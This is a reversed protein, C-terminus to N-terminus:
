ATPKQESQRRRRRAVVAASLGSGLLILSAPEPITGGPPTGGVRTQWEQFGDNDAAIGALAPDTCQYPPQISPATACGWGDLLAIYPGAFGTQEIFVDIDGSGSGNHNRYDFNVFDSLAGFLDLFPTGGNCQSLSTYDTTSCNFLMLQNLSLLSGSGSSVQNIDVTFLAYNSTEGSVPPTNNFSIDGLPLSSSWSADFDNFANVGLQHTSDTNWGSSYTNKTDDSPNGGNGDRNVRLFPQFTGTGTPRIDADCFYVTQGTSAVVSICANDGVTGILGAHATAAPVVAALLM